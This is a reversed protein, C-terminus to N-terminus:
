NSAFVITCSYTDRGSIPGDDFYVITTYGNAKTPQQAFSLGHRARTVTMQPTWGTLDIPLKLTSTYDMSQGNITIGTPPSFSLHQWTISNGSIKMYDSGDIVVSVTITFTKQQCLGGQFGSKCTCKDQATCTGNGSCVNPDTALLNGCTTLKKECYNGARAFKCDCQENAVCAGQGNCVAPDISYTGNCVIKVIDCNDGLFDNCRKTLADIELQLVTAVQTLDGRQAGNTSMYSTQLTADPANYTSVANGLINLYAQANKVEALQKIKDALILKATTPVSPSQCSSTSSAPSATVVTAGSVSVVALLVCCAIVVFAHSPKM